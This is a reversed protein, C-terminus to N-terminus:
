LIKPTYIRMTNNDELSISLDARLLISGQFIRYPHLLDTKLIICVGAWMFPLFRKGAEGEM